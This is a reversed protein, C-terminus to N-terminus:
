LRFPRGSHRSDRNPLQRSVTKPPRMQRQVQSQALEFSVRRDSPSRSRDRFRPLPALGRLIYLAALMSTICVPIPVPARVNAADRGPILTRRRDAAATGLWGAVPVAQDMGFHLRGAPSKGCDSRSYGPRSIRPRDDAPHPQHHDARQRRSRRLRRRHTPSTCCGRSITRALRWRTTAGHAKIPRDAILVPVLARDAIAGM